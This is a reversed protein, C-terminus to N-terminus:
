GGVQNFMKNFSELPSGGAADPNVPTRVQRSAPGSMGYDSRVSRVLPIWRRLEALAPNVKVDGKDNMITAPGAAEAHLERLREWMACCLAFDALDSEAILGVAVLASGDQQWHQKGIDGLWGPSEPLETLPEAPLEAPSREERIRGGRFVKLALPAPKRGSGKGGM